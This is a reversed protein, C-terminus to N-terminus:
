ICEKISEKKLLVIGSLTCVEQYWQSITIQGYDSDTNQWVLLQLHFKAIFYDLLYLTPVLLSAAVTFAYFVRRRKTSLITKADYNHVILIYRELALAAIVFTQSWFSFYDPIYKLVKWYIRVRQWLARLSSVENTGYM